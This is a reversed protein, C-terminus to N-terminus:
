VAVAADTRLQHHKGGLFYAFNANAVSCSNLTTYPIVSLNKKMEASVSIRYDGIIEHVNEEAHEM